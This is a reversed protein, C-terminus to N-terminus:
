RTVNTSDGNSCALYELVDVPFDNTFGVQGMILALKQVKRYLPGPTIASTEWCVVRESARCNSPDSTFRMTGSGKSVCVCIEEASSQNSTAALMSLVVGFAILLRRM